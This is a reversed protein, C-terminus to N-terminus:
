RGEEENPPTGDGATRATATADASRPAITPPGSRCPWGDSTTGADLLSRIEDALRGLAAVQEEVERLETELLERAHGCPCLGRERIGLLERIDDLRLGFRQARKVFRLRDVDDEDFLRYGGPSREAEPLVGIREYYRVTDASTGVREALQSVTMTDMAAGTHVKSDVGLDLYGGGGLACRM